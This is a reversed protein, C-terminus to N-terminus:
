KGRTGSNRKAELNSGEKLAIQSEKEMGLFALSASQLYSAVHWVPSIGQAQIADDLAEKPMDSMLYCLSRRACVTPSIMGGDIFQWLKLFPILSISHTWISWKLHLFVSRRTVSLPRELTKKGSLWMVRRRRTWLSKCRTQGCKFRSSCQWFM